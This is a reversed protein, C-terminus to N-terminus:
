FQFYIFQGGSYDGLLTMLFWIGAYVLARPIWPVRRIAFEDGAKWQLAQVALLPLAYFLVSDFRANRFSFEGFIASLMQMAQGLSDARFLLWSVCVFHFLVIRKGWASWPSGAAGAAPSAGAWARHGALLVGHFTGWAVFTWAAGHWLGGLVMTLMLNLYTRLTGKRNGGLPIYLYDRLWSSLSMHWRRWFDGPDTAFYPLDFNRVLEIGMTKALGRAIDTYGSFDGYIQFAFAYVSALAVGGNEVPSVFGLVAVRALNDAVFIKKFLGWFVLWAGDEMHGRTITRPRRFQPLLISARLIPGAVLHPFFSIFLAFNLLSREQRMKGQYVEITYSMTQFTYFSIGAPLVIALTPAHAQFGLSGLLDVASEAFFNWYKFLGLMALGAGISVGLVARRKGPSLAYPGDEGTGPARRDLLRGAAYDVVTSVSLLSLFRWDWWGYFFWSAALLIGNQLLLRRMTARYLGYVVVFFVLFPLSNFLM